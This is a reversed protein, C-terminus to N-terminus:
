DRLSEPTSLTSPLIEGLFKDKKRELSECFGWPSPLPLDRFDHPGRAWGLNWWSLCLLTSTMTETGRLCTTSWTRAGRPSVPRRGRRGAPPPHVRTIPVEGYAGGRGPKPSGTVGSIFYRLSRKWLTTGGGDGLPVTGSERPVSPTGLRNPVVYFPLLVHHFRNLVSSTHSATRLNHNGFSRSVPLYVFSDLIM